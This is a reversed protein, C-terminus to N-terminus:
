AAEVRLQARFMVWLCRLVMSFALVNNCVRRCVFLPLRQLNRFQPSHPLPALCVPLCAALWGALWGALALAKLAFLAPADLPLWPVTWPVTWPLRLSLCVLCVCAPLVWALMCASGSAESRVPLSAARSQRFFVARFEQAFRVEWPTSSRWRRGGPRQLGHSAGESHKTHVM